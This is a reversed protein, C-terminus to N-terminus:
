EEFIEGDRWRHWTTEFWSDDDPLPRVQEAKVRVDGDSWWAELVEDRMQLNESRHPMMSGEPTEVLRDGRRDLVMYAGRSGGGQRIYDSITRLVVLSTLALHENQYAHILRDASKVSQELSRLDEYLKKAEAVAEAVDPLSRIIGAAEDMRRAIGHRVKLSNHGGDRMLQEIHAMELEIAPANSEAWDAADPADAAYVNAIYEAARQGGVQGANLASGGPRVGHTGAVEGIAFLHAVSTEWWINVSLGGNCHQACVGVEVPERLNVGHEDYIDIALPNLEQLRKYPTEATAGSKELYERAEDSLVQLSFDEMQPGPVPNRSLDMYVRRGEAMERHIAIDVLSSGANQLRDAHFPWQYGKLFTNTAVEGMTEYYDNLFYRVEGGDEDTSFYCPVVQQYSGSLNWRFGTSAIGFQFESMNNAEAGIQLALGHSGVQNRPYVTTAFLEGPGGTALVINNAAFATLGRDPEDLRNRNLALAGIVKGEENRLLRIVEYGDFLEVERKRCEELLCEFMQMSTKPGASTGRRRPDHDTKYGVYAGYKNFPFEVGIRALHFFAPASGLAECYATDGHCMGGQTLTKAFDMPSDAVDGFVGLKYYTQKDSGSNNSTGAGLKSTVVALSKEGLDHLQKACNL